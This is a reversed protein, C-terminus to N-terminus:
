ELLEAPAYPGSASGWDDEVGTGCHAYGRRNDANDIVWYPTGRIVYDPDGGQDDLSVYVGGDTNLFFRRPLQEDAECTGCPRGSDCPRLPTYTPCADGAGWPADQVYLAGTQEGTGCEVSCPGWNIGVVCHAGLAFDARSFVVEALDWDAFPAFGLFSGQGATAWQDATGVWGQLEAWTSGVREGVYAANDCGSTAQAGCAAVASTGLTLGHPLASQGEASGGDAVPTPSFATSSTSLASLYRLPESVFFAQYAILTDGAAHYDVDGHRSWRADNHADAIFVTTTEGQALGNDDTTFEMTGTTQLLELESSADGGAWGDDVGNATFFIVTNPEVDVFTTFQFADPRDAHLGTIMIDLPQLITGCVTAAACARSPTGEPCTEGTGSAEEHVIYSGTETGVGCAASCVGSWDIEYDCDVGLSFAWDPYNSADIRLNFPPLPDFAAGDLVTWGTAGDGVRSQLDSWTPGMREGSYIANACDNRGVCVVAASVSVELSPPLGSQATRSGGAQTSVPTFGSSAYSLAYLFTEVVGPEFAQYAILTDGESGYDISGHVAYGPAPDALRFSQVSGRPIDSPAVFEVTGTDGLLGGGGEGDGAWGTEDYGDSTFYIATGTAIDAFAVWQFGDPTDGHVATIAVDAPQLTTGCHVGTYCDRTPTESPCMEGAGWGDVSVSRTGTETGIGCAASCSGWTVTYECDEGLELNATSWQDFGSGVQWDAAVGVRDRLVAWTAGLRSASYGGGSCPDDGSCIAVSSGVGLGSPLATQGSVSGAPDPSFETLAYSLAYLFHYPSGVTNSQYAIISDGTPLFDVSGHLTWEGGFEGDLSVSIATGAAVFSPATWELTGGGGILSGAADDDGSGSTDDNGSSGGDDSGDVVWGDNYGDNTFFIHTGASVDVLPAWQFADPESDIGTIVIDLPALTTGCLVGSDCARSPVDNSCAQGAGWGEVAVDYTGDEVGWGCAADCSGSWQITEVCDEGLQFGASSFPFGSSQDWEYPAESNFYAGSAVSWYGGASGGGIWGRITGWSAGLRSGTYGTNACGSIGDCVSTATTGLELGPPLASQGAVAGGSATATPTFGSSAYSFAYLYTDVVGLEFGQYAILTDGSSGLDVDGHQMWHAGANAIHVGVVSGAALGGEPATYQMSGETGILAGPGNTPEGGDVWGDDYGDATFYLNTGGAIDVFTTWQFFDPADGHVATIAIDSPQLTTGCHVGTNCARSAQGEPCPEGAGWGEVTVDYSGLEVGIGCAVSCEESWDITYECDEGVVFWELSFPMPASPDVDFPPVDFFSEQASWEWNVEDAVDTQLLPYTAAMRRGTYVINDCADNDDCISVATEGLVLGPPLACGAILDGGASEAPPSFGTEDFSAATLFTTTSAVGMEHAQYLILSDGGTSFQVDGFQTWHEPLEEVHVTVVQGQVLGDAPVVFRLTGEMGMLSDPGSTESQDVWGDDYGDTTAYIVTDPEVDVWTTFQFTDPTDGHFGIIALDGPALTTGCFVGTQCERTPTDDPCAAGFGTPTVDVQYSGSQTGEACDGECPGDWVVSVECDRGIMFPEESFEFDAYPDIDYPELELFIESRSFEWNAPDAVAAQLFPWDEDVRGGVYAANDCRTTCFFMATEGIVLGTPLGSASAAPTDVTPSFGSSHTSMAYLFTTVTGPSPGQYAILADGNNFYAIDGTVTYGPTNGQEAVPIHVQLVTGALVPAADATVTFTM